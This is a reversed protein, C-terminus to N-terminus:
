RNKRVNEHLKKGKAENQADKFDQKSVKSQCATFTLLAAILYRM